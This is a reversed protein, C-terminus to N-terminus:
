SLTSNRKAVTLAAISVPSGAYFHFNIEVCFKQKLRDFANPTGVINVIIVFKM